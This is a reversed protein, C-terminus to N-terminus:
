SRSTLPHIATQGYICKTEQCIAGSPVRRKACLTGLGRVFVSDLQMLVNKRSPLAEPSFVNRMMGAIDSLAELDQSDQEISPCVGPKM